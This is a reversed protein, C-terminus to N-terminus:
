WLLEESTSDFKSPIRVEHFFAQGRKSVETLAEQNTVYISNKNTAIARWIHRSFNLSLKNVQTITETITGKGKCVCLISSKWGREYTKSKLFQYSGSMWWDGGLGADPDELELIQKKVARSTCSLRQTHVKCESHVYVWIWFRRNCTTSKFSISIKM